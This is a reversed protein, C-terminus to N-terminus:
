VILLENQVFFAHINELFNANVKAGYIQWNTYM